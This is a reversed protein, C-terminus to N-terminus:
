GSATQLFAAQILIVIMDAAANGQFKLKRFATFLLGEQCLYYSFM